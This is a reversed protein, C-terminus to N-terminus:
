SIPIIHCGRAIGGFTTPTPATTPQFVVKFNFM